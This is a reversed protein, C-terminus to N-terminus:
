LQLYERQQLRGNAASDLSIKQGNELILIAKNGGPVPEVIPPTQTIVPITDKQQLYLWAALAVILISAAITDPWFKSWFPPTTRLNM